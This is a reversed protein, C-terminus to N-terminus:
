EPSQVILKEKGCEDCRVHVFLDGDSDEPIEGEPVGLEARALAPVKVPLDAAGLAQVLRMEREHCERAEPGTLWRPEVSPPLRTLQELNWASEALYALRRLRAEEPLSAFAGFAEALAPRDGSTALQALDIAADQSELAEEWNHEPTFGSELLSSFLQAAALRRRVEGLHDAAEQPLQLYLLAGCIRPDVAGTHDDVDMEARLADGLARAASFRFEAEVGLEKLYMAAQAAEKSGLQLARQARKVAEGDPTVTRGELRARVAERYLSELSTGPTTQAGLPPRLEPVDLVWTPTARLGSLGRFLLTGASDQPRFPPLNQVAEEHAQHASEEAHLRQERTFSTVGHTPPPPPPPAAEGNLGTVRDLDVEEFEMEELGRAGTFDCRLIKMREFTAGELNAGRFDCDQLRGGHFYANSLDTERFSVKTLDCKEWESGVLELASLDANASFLQAFTAGTHDTGVKGAKRARNWEASGSALLQEISPTKAM